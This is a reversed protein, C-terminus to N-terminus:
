CRGMVDAPSTKDPRLAAVAATVRTHGAMCNECGGAAGELLHDILQDLLVFAIFEIQGLTMDEAAWAVGFRQDEEERIAATLAPLGTTRALRRAADRVQNELKAQPDAAVM